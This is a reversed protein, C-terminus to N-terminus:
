HAQENGWEGKNFLIITWYLDNQKQYDPIVFNFLDRGVYDM